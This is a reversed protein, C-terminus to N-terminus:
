RVSPNSQACADTSITPSPTCCLTPRTCRRRKIQWTGVQGRWCANLEGFRALSRLPPSVPAAPAFWAPLTRACLATSRPSFTSTARRRRKCAWHMPALHEVTSGCVACCLLISVWRLRSRHLVIVQDWVTFTFGADTSFVLRSLPTIRQLM